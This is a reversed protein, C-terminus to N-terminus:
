IAFAVHRMDALAKDVCRKNWDRPNKSAKGDAFVVFERGMGGYGNRARYDFCAVSGDASAHISEWVLSGPDRLSKKIGAALRATRQFAREKEASAAVQGPTPALDKAVAPAGLDSKFIAFGLAAVFLIKLASM